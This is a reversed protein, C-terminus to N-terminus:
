LNKISKIFELSKFNGELHYSIYKMLIDFLSQLQKDPIKLIQIRPIKSDIAKQVIKLIGQPLYEYSKNEVKCKICITGGEDIDFKRYSPGVKDLLNLNEKSNCKVCHNLVPQIGILSLLKILFLTTIEQPKKSKNILRLFNLLLYFLRPNSDYDSIGKDIGELFLSAYAFTKINSQINNFSEIVDAESLTFLEKGEKEYYIINLHNFLNVASAFKSKIRRSGKAIIRVKGKDLSYLTIIKSSESYNMEKIIIAETKIIPM